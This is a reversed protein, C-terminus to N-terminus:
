GFPRAAQLRTPRGFVQGGTEQRLLEAREHRLEDTLGPGGAGSPADVSRGAMQGLRELGEIEGDHPRAAPVFGLERGAADVGPLHLRLAELGPEPRAEKEGALDEVDLAATSAEVQGPGPGRSLDRSLPGRGAGPAGGPSRPPIM